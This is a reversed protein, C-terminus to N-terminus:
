AAPAKRSQLNTLSPAPLSRALHAAASGLCLPACISPTPRLQQPLTLDVGTTRMPAPRGGGPSPSSGGSGFSASGPTLYVPRRIDSDRRSVSCDAGCTYAITQGVSSPSRRVPAVVGVRSRISAGVSTGTPGPCCRHSGRRAHRVGSWHPARGEKPQCGRGSGRTRRWARGRHRDHRAASAASPCSQIPSHGTARISRDSAESGRGLGRGNPSTCKTCSSSSSIIAAV